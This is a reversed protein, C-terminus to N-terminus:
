SPSSADHGEERKLGPCNSCINQVGSLKSRRRLVKTLTQANDSAHPIINQVRRNTRETTTSVFSTLLANSTRMCHRINGISKSLKTPADKNLPV